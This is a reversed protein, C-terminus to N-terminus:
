GNIARLGVPAPLSAARILPISTKGHSNLVEEPTAAVRDSDIGNSIDWEIVFRSKVDTIAMLFMNGKAPAM